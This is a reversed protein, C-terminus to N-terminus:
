SDTHFIILKRLHNEYTKWKPQNDEQYESINKVLKGLYTSIEWAGKIQEIIEEVGKM